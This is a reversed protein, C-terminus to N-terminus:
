YLLAPIRFITRSAFSPSSAARLLVSSFHFTGPRTRSLSSLHISSLVALSPSSSVSVLIRTYLTCPGSGPRASTFDYLCSTVRRSIRTLSTRISSSRLSSLARSIENIESFPALPYMWSVCSVSTSPCIRLDRSTRTHTFPLLLSLTFSFLLSLSLSYRPMASRRRGNMRARPVM